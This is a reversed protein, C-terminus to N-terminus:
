SMPRSGNVVGFGRPPNSPAGLGAVLHSRKLRHIALSGSVEHRVSPPADGADSMALPPIREYIQGSSRVRIFVPLTYCETEPIASANKYFLALPLAETM